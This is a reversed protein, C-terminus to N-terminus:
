SRAVPVAKGNISRPGETVAGRSNVFVDPRRALTYQRLM